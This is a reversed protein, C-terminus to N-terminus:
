PGDEGFANKILEVTYGGGRAEISVVDFRVAQDTLGKESMYVESTTIIRGQKRKDVSCKPTGFADGGRTKVEVFAVVDGDRAILDIEGYRCRYNKEIIRYGNKKLVREAEKEGLKGFSIRDLAM